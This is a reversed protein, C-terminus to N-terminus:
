KVFNNIFTLIENGLEDINYIVEKEEVGDLINYPKISIKKNNTLESIIQTYFNSKDLKDSCDLYKDSIEIFISNDTNLTINKKNNKSKKDVIDSTNACLLKYLNNYNNLKLYELMYILLTYFDKSNAYNISAVSPNYYNYFLYMITLNTKNVILNNFYHNIENDTLDLNLEEKVISIYDKVNLKNMLHEYESLSHQNHVNDFIDITNVNERSKAIPRYAFKFDVAFYYGLSNKLVTHLFTMPNLDLRLKPIQDILLKRYTAAIYEIPTNGANTFYLWMGKDSFETPEVRCSVFRYLKNAININDGYYLSFKNLYILILDLIINTFDPLKTHQNYKLILPIVFRILSSTALIIKIHYEEFKLDDKYNNDDLEIKSEEEVLKYIYDYLYESLLLLDNFFLRANYYKTNSDVISDKYFDILVNNDSLYKETKLIEKSINFYAELTNLDYHFCNNVENAISEIIEGTKGLYIRKKSIKFIELEKNIKNNELNFYDIFNIHITNPTKIEKSTTISILSVKIEKEIEM